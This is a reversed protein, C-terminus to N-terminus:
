TGRRSWAAALFEFALDRDAVSKFTIIVPGYKWTLRIAPRKATVLYATGRVLNSARFTGLDPHVPAKGGYMPTKTWPRVDLTAGTMRAPRDRYRRRDGLVNEVVGTVGVEIDLQSPPSGARTVPEHPLAVFPVLGVYWGANMLAVVGLSLGALGFYLWPESSPPTIRGGSQYGVAVFWLGWASLLGLASFMFIWSPGIVRDNSRNGYTRQNVLNALFGGASLLRRLLDM